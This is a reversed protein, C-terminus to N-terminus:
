PGAEPGGGPAGSAPAAVLPALRILTALDLGKLLLLPDIYAGNLRASFHLHPTAVDPHGHGTFGIVEGTHVSQGKSAAFGSIWSYSTKVGDGHDLTLFM